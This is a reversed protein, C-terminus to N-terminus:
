SQPTGNFVFTGDGQSVQVTHNMLQTKYAELQVALTSEKLDAMAELVRINQAKTYAAIDIANNDFAAPYVRYGSFFNIPTVSYFTTENLNSPITFSPSTTVTATSDKIVPLEIARAGSMTRLSELAAQPILQKAAPTGAKVAQIIGHRNLRKEDIGGTIQLDNLQNADIYAM